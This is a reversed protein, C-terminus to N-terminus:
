ELPAIPVMTPQRPAAELPAIPVMTPPAPAPEPRATARADPQVPVPSAPEKVDGSVVDDPRARPLPAPSPTASRRALEAPDSAGAREAPARRGDRGEIPPRRPGQLPVAAPPIPAPEYGPSLREYPALRGEYGPGGHSAGALRTAALVRGSRADVTLRVDMFYRDVAFLMYVAGRQLPRSLPDFGASRVSAVIEAPPLAGGAQPAAPRATPAADDPPAVPQAEIRVPMVLVLGAIGWAMAGLKM